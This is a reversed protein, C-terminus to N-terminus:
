QVPATRVCIIYQNSEDASMSSKGSMQCHLSLQHLDPRQKIRYLHLLLVLTQKFQSLLQHAIVVKHVDM